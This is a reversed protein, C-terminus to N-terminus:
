RRQILEMVAAMDLRREPSMHKVAHDPVINKFATIDLRLNNYADKLEPLFRVPYLTTKLHDVSQEQSIKYTMGGKDNHDNIWSRIRDVIRSGRTPTKKDKGSYQQLNLLMYLYAFDSIVFVDLTNNKDLRSTRALTKWVGHLIFGRQANDSNEIAKQLTDRTIPIMDFLSPHRHVLREALSFQTNQRFIMETVQKTSHTPVVTLKTEMELLEVNGLSPVVDMPPGNVSKKFIKPAKERNWTIDSLEDHNIQLMESFKITTLDLQANAIRLYNLPIDNDEM